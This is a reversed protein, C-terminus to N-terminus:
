NTLSIIFYIIMALISLIIICGTGCGHGFIAGAFAKIYYWIFGITLLIGILVLIVYFLTMM